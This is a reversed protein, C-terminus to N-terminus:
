SKSRLVKNVADLDFTAQWEDGIWRKLESHRPHQLDAMAALFDRFGPVGGVDEPPCAGEGEICLPERGEYALVDEVEVLHLWSDGFDYEYHFCAGPAKVLKRLKTRAEDEHDVHDLMFRPDTFFLEDPFEFLHLHSNTWGMVIQLVEHLRKLSRNGSFLLRRWVPPDVGELTVKLQYVPRRLKLREESVRKETV